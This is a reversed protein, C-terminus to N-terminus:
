PRRPRRRANGRGEALDSSPSRVSPGKPNRPAQGSMTAEAAHGSGNLKHALRARRRSIKMEM